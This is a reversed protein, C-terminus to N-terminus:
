PSVTAGLQELLARGTTSWLHAVFKAAAPTPDALLVVCIRVPFAYTKNALTENTALVGDLALARLDLREARIQLLTMIALSGATQLALEANDQDTTAVPVGPRAYATELAAAMGPIAAALYGNESGARARLLVKLPRGDPWVPSASTYLGPLDAKNLGSPAPHSSAFVLATTLCGAETAGKATEEPKLARGVIAVDIARENLARLGGPTGLSPLVEVRLSPELATLSDGLQQMAALAMGTGGVRVVGIDASAVKPPLVLSFFLATFLCFRHTNKLRPYKM